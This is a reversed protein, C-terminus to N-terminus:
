RRRKKPPPPVNAFLPLQLQGPRAAPEPEDPPDAVLQRRWSLLTQARRTATSRALAAGSVLAAEVDARTPRVPGLLWPVLQRVVATSEVARRILGREEASERRSLLLARGTETVRMAGRSRELWGLVRGAQLAYDVHRLEIATARAIADSETAGTAVEAVVRRVVAFDEKQPIDRKALPM